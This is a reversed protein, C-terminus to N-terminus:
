AVEANLLFAAKGPMFWSKPREVPLAGGGGYVPNESSWLLKWEKQPPPALLPEPLPTLHKDVGLNVFLLYDENGPCFYRL